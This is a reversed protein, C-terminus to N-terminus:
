RAAYVAVLQPAAALLIGLAWWGGHNGSVSWAILGIGCAFSAVSAVVALPRARTRIRRRRSWVTAVVLLWGALVLSTGVGDLVSPGHDRSISFLRPGDDPLAVIVSGVTVLLLAALLSRTV